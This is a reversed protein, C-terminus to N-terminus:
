VSSHRERSGVKRYCARLKLQSVGHGLQRPGVHLQPRHVRHVMRGMSWMSGHVWPSESVGHEADGGCRRQGDRPVRQAPARRRRVPPAPPATGGARPQHSRRLPQPCRDIPAPGSQRGAAGADPLECCQPRPRRCGAASTRASRTSAGVARAASEYHAAIRGDAKALVMEILDLTSRFFPWQAYM